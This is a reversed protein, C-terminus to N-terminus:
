RARRDTWRDIMGYIQRNTNLRKMREDMQRDNQRDAWGKAETCRAWNPPKGQKDREAHHWGIERERERERARERYVGRLYVFTTRKHGKEALLGKLSIM